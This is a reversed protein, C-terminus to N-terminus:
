GAAPQNTASGVATWVPATADPAHYIELWDSTPTTWAWVTAEITVLKGPALATGDNTYIKLRDNSEDVHYTGSTGDACTTNITNPQNPEPGKGDRGLLLAPGSDCSKGVVGCKPAKLTADYSATQDGLGLAFVLDDHDDFAGAGCAAASGGRRLRARIASPTANSGTLTYTAGLTQLGNATATLTGVLAWAPANADPAYYLDLKDQTFDNIWARVDIQVPSGGAFPQANTTYVRLYDISEDVHYTGSTGDACSNNITNPQNPENGGTITDRGNVLTGTDCARGM